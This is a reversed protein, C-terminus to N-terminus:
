GFSYILNPSTPKNSLISIANSEYFTYAHSAALLLLLPLLPIM